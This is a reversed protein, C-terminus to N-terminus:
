LTPRNAPNLRSPSTGVLIPFVPVIAKVEYGPKLVVVADDRGKGIWDIEEQAVGLGDIAARWIAPDNSENPTDEPFDLEIEQGRRRAKLIGSLTSFEVLEANQHMGFVVHAAALTAHGCLSVEVTPTWWRLGFMPVEKEKGKENNLPLLYATESLNFEAAVKRMVKDSPWASVLVVSAPNGSFPTPTFADIIQFEFTDPM